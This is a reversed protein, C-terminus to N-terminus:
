KREKKPEGRLVRRPHSNRVQCFARFGDSVRIRLIMMFEVFKLSSKFCARNEKPPPIKGIIM